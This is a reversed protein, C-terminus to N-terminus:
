PVIAEIRLRVFVRAGSTPLTVIVHDTNADLTSTAITAGGVGHVVPNWTSLDTSSQAFVNYQATAAVKVDYTFTLTGGSAAVTPLTTSGTLNPSGGLAFKVLNVVGDGSPNATPAGNGAPDLGYSAAWTDYPSASAVTLVAASSTASGVANTAVVTYSAADGASVSTLSYTASTAGSIADVGKFWQFTPAPTGSAAATFTVNAGPAVSQSAPQTTIAPGAAPTPLSQEVKLASIVVSPVSANSTTRAGIAFSDFASTVASPATPTAGTAITVGSASLLLTGSTDVGNYLKYSIGYQDAASRNIEYVLTYTTGSVFTYAASPNVLSSLSTGAPTGYSVSGSGPVVLEQTRNTAATGTQALRTLIRASTDANAIHARYGVWGLTGGTMNNTGGLLDAVAGNHLTTYPLSGGSNFLGWGLTAINNVTFTSTVKLASGSAALSLPTPTFVAAAEYIGSTTAANITLTFPRTEVVETTAPDDGVNSNTAVKSAMVYWNTSTPTIVPSAAHITDQAFNTSFATSTQNVVLTLTAPNSTASGGENTVVVSYTGLNAGGASPISYTASNAGSIPDSGLYWQYSLPASGTATVSFSAAGGITATAAAPHATIAPLVVNVTVVAPTASTDSGLSNTATVTYSGANATAATAITYSPGTAGAIEVGGRFWQYTPAPYGTAVVSLNILDGVNVTVSAPPTTIVPAASNITIVAPNSTVPGQTNTAVVTYTGADDATAATVTYTSSTAGSIPDLGKFWQYTPTPAGSTAATLTLTEGANVTQTAPHTTFVPLSASSVTVAVTASTASGLANTVVVYYNGVDGASTAGISYTASTAGSLPSSDKYWQYTLPATGSAVVSVSGAQGTVWAQDVPQTVIDAVASNKATVTLSTLYLQSISNGGTISNRTGIAFADFASTVQSPMTTLTTVGSVSYLVVESADRITYAITLADAATRTITYILRYESGLGDALTVTAASNGISAISVPGPSNFDGTSTAVVDHASRTLSAGTQPLRASIVGTASGSQLRARYGKWALTGDNTVTLPTSDLGTNQLTTLPNVGGSNYFGASLNLVKDTYFVARATISDGVAALDVPTATFRAIGEVGAASSTAAYTLNFGASSITTSTANKSSLIYWNTSTPTIIPTTAHITDASFNTQFVTSDASATSPAFWALAALLAARLLTNQPRPQM